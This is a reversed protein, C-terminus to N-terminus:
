KRVLRASKAISKRSTCAATSWRATKTSSCSRRCSSSAWRRPSAGKWAARRRAPQGVAAPEAEPVDGLDGGQRRPQHRRGRRQRSRVESAHGEARRSGDAGGPQEHGLLARDGDQRSLGVLDFKEGNITKGTLVLVKGVCDIRTVAGKATTAAHASPFQTVIQTYLEKAEQEKGSFEADIALHLLADPTESSTPFDKVFTRLSDLWGSPDENLDAGPASQAIMYETTMSRFRAYAVLDKDAGDAPAEKRLGEAAHHGEPYARSEAGESCSDILQRTWQM